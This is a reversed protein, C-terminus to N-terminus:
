RRDAPGSIHAAFHKDPRCPFGRVPVWEHTQAPLQDTRHSPLGPLAEEGCRRPAPGGPLSPSAGGRVSSGWWRVEGGSPPGM